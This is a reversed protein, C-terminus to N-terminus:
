IPCSGPGEQRVEPHMPCTYITGAPVPPAPEKPKLFSEPDAKFRERCRASCFFYEQDRYTLRHKATAPDVSMGCVPDIAKAPGAENHHHGHSCCGGHKHGAHADHGTHTHTTGSM